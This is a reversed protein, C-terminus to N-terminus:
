WFSRSNKKLGLSKWYRPLRCSWYGPKTKDEKKASKCDHRSVFNRVAEDDDLKASLGGKSDGFDVKIVNGKKNKTFVKYKKPGSSRKPKNLDVDKGKYEAENLMPFDLPVMEGHYEGFEGVDTEYLFYAEIGAPEYNGALALTRAERILSFYADSGPRYINDNVPIGQSMHHELAESMVKNQEALVQRVYKRLISM